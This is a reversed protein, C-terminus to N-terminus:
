SEQAAQGWPAPGEEFLEIVTGPASEDKLGVTLLPGDFTRVNAIRRPKWETQGIVHRIVTIEEVVGKEVREPTFDHGHCHPCLLREPFLAANCHKCRWFGVGQNM